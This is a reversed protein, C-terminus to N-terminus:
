KVVPNVPVLLVVYINYVPIVNPAFQHVATTYKVHFTFCHCENIVNVFQAVTHPDLMGSVHFQTVHVSSSSGSGYKKFSCLTHSVDNVVSSITTCTQSIIWYLNVKQFM